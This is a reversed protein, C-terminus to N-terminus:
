ANTTPQSEDEVDLKVENVVENFRITQVDTGLIVDNVFLVRTDVKILDFGFTEDETLWVKFNQKDDDYVIEENEIDKEYTKTLDGINFQIKKVNDMNLANGDEDSLEFEMFFQNGKKM